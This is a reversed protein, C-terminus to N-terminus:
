PLESILVYFPVFRFGSTFVTSRYSTDTRGYNPYTTNKATHLMERYIDIDTGQFHCLFSLSVFDTSPDQIGWMYDIDGYKNLTINAVEGGVRINSVVPLLYTRPTAGLAKNQRLDCM